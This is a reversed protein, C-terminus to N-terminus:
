SYLCKDIKNMISLVTGNCTSLYKNFALIMRYKSKLEAFLSGKNGECGQTQNEGKVGELIM